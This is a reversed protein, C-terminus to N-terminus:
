KQFRQFIKNGDLKLRVGIVEPRLKPGEKGNKARADAYGKMGSIVLFFTVEISRIKRENILIM